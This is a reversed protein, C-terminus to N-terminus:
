QYNRERVLGSKVLLVTNWLKSSGFVGGFGFSDGWGIYRYRSWVIDWPRYDM